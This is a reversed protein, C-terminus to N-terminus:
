LPDVAESCTALLFTTREETPASWRDNAGELYYQYRIEEGLSAGLGVFDVSVQRQNPALDLMPLDTEGLESVPKAVGEIRLGTLYVSPLTPAEQKEPVFRSLGNTSGFWLAGQRDRYAHEISGKPLGDAVTFHKVSGTEVDVRDVGRGMGAYIRGWEDETISRINNSSLGDATTYTKLRLADAGPDDICNLGGLQSAIWLRGAHDLYLWIIWGPPAGEDTTFRQFKGDRYRLLGGGESTGVWLNGSRDERFATFDTNPPVGTEATHDHVIGTAREWRQLSFHLGTTATWIDGRADEYLRFVEARNFAGVTRIVQPHARALEEIREGKPFHYLAFGPIWWEGLHDQIMIQGWGWGQYRVSSPLNPVVSHFRTGDFLNISRQTYGLGATSAVFLAGDHNEFISNIWTLGLGDAPGYGTFGNRAVKQTGCTSAVWLNGDRDETLDWVSNCLGNRANYLQIRPTISDSSPAIMYLGTSCAAWLKGDHTQRLRNIWGATLGDQAGYIRAVIPRSPDPVAVLMLLEGALGMRTGAWINGDHDELLSAISGGPLGHEKSYHEVRGDPLLRVLVEGVSCWLAGHRDKLLAVVSRSNPAAGSPVGLEVFRFQSAGDPSVALKFLGESTACWIDGTEDELLANFAIAKETPNFVVFMPEITPGKDNNQSVTANKRASHSLGTPNFRCLGGDTAIWYVGSRTELLDNVRRDALGDTTAYNTFKYGDFRSIGDGAAMWLFGRSDQRLLTVEDRPLGEGTSYTKVPLQEAFSVVTTLCLAILHFLLRSIVQKKPM